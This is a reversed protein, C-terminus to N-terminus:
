TKWNKMNHKLFGVVRPSVKFLELSRLIWEHPVSDFAKKYDIWACSLNRKRKKCNELIMKNIMLQDKCGYSGRRCGKQELPFLDNQELHSYTRDTLVSTLLKYTTSLCTIPRYNKPDKTDNSKALLYTTGECMWKPAKEPNEMIENLLRTFTVHSSSLANLWFNPVKDIGPSKWKQSKTLAAKLELVTINQWEQEKVKQNGKEMNGIWSASMNCAKKEGWIGKWLKEISDKPPTEKVMVQNKGIKRHFKKADM